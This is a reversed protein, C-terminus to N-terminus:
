HGTGPKPGPRTTTVSPSSPPPAEGGKQVPVSTSRRPSAVGLGEITAARVSRPGATRAFEVSLTRQSQAERDGERMSLATARQDVLDALSEYDLPYATRRYAIRAAPDALLEHAKEVLPRMRACAEPAASAWAGGPELRKLAARYAEDIEITNASWHVDLAEFHNGAAMKTARAEVQQPLTLAVKAKPEAWEIVGYLSLIYFLGLTTHQGAGGHLLTHGTEYGDCGGTVIRMETSTLGLRPLLAAGEPRPVPARDLRAGLAKEMEQATFARSLVRLGAVTLRLMSAPPQSDNLPIEEKPEFSYTGDPWGYAQTVMERERPNMHPRGGVVAFSISRPGHTLTVIGRVQPRAVVRALLVPLTM